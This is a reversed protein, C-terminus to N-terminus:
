CDVGVAVEAYPLEPAGAVWAQNSGEHFYRSSSMVHMKRVIRWTASPCDRKFHRPM